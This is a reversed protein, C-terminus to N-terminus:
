RRPRVPSRRSQLLLMGLGRLYGELIRRSPPCKSGCRLSPLPPPPKDIQPAATPRIELEDGDRETTQANPGNARRVTKASPDEPSYSRVTELATPPTWRKRSPSAPSPPLLNPTSASIGSLTGYPSRTGANTSKNQGAMYKSRSPSPSEVFKILTIITRAVRALSESTGEILDDRQFMDDYSLGYSACAALFKTM